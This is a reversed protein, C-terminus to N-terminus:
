DWSYRPRRVDRISVTNSAMLSVISGRRIHVNDQLYKALKRIAIRLSQYTYVVEGSLGDILAPKNLPTNQLNYNLLLNSITADQPYELVYDSDYGM